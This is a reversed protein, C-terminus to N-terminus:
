YQCKIGKEIPLYTVVKTVKTNDGMTTKPFKEEEEIWKPSIKTLDFLYLINDNFIHIYYPIYGYLYYESMLSDYKYKELVVGKSNIIPSYSSYNPRFKIEGVFRKDSKSWFVDVSAYKDETFKINKCKKELLKAIIERGRKEALEFKNNTSEM